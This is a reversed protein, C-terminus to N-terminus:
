IRPGESTDKVYSCHMDRAECVNGPLSIGMGRVPTERSDTLPALGKGM